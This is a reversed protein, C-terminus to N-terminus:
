LLQVIGQNRVTGRGAIGGAMPQRKVMRSRSDRVGGQSQGQAALGARRKRFYLAQGRFHGVIGQDVFDIQGFHLSGHGAEVDGPAPRRSETEPRGRGAPTSPEESPRGPM